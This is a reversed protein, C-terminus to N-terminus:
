SSRFQLKVFMWIGSLALIALAGGLLDVIMPGFRGLVRGSHFDSIVRELVVAPQFSPAYAARLKEPLAVAASWEAPAALPQWALGDRSVFNQKGALVVSDGARGIRLIPNEPLAAGDLKDVLRGDPTYILLAHTSAVYVMGGASVMGIPTGTSNALPKGDLLWHEENGAMWHGASAFGSQPAASALGYWRTLWSQHLEVHDLGLTATHNLAWGTSVLWLVWLSAIVGFWRHWRRMKHSLTPKRQHHPKRSM